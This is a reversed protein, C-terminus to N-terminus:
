MCTNRLVPDWSQSNLRPIAIVLMSVTFWGYFIVRRLDVTVWFTLTTVGNNKFRCDNKLNKLM